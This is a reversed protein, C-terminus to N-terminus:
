AHAAESSGEDHRLQAPGATARRHRAQGEYAAAVGAAFLVFTAIVLILYLQEGFTM